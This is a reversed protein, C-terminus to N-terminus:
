EYHVFFFIFFSLGRTGKIKAVFNCSLRIEDKGTRKKEEHQCCRIRGKGYNQIEKLVEQFKRTPIFGLNILKFEFYLYIKVRVDLEAKPLIVPPKPRWLLQFFPDKNLAFVRKGRCNWIVFGNESKNKWNSVYTAVFRGTADRISNLCNTRYLSHVFFFLGAFMPAFNILNKLLAKWIILM